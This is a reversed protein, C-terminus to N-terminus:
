RPRHGTVTCWSWGHRIHSILSRKLGYEAALATDREGAWCRRYIEQAQTSTIRERPTTARQRKLAANRRVGVLRRCERCLRGYKGSPRYYINDETLEHGHKCHTQAEGRQLNERTTVPELHDPNVCARNRCLHDIVLGEPIPGRAVEYVVRHALCTKGVIGIKTYGNKQRARNSTWCPTEYGCDEVQSREVLRAFLMGDSPKAVDIERTSRGRGPVTAVTAPTKNRLENTWIFYLTKGAESCRMRWPTGPLIPQHCRWCRVDGRDVLPRWRNREKQHTSGYGRSTTTGRDAATSRPASDVWRESM